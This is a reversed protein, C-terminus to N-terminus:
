KEQRIKYTAYLQGLASCASTALLVKNLAPSEYKSKNIISATAAILSLPLNISAIAMSNTYIPRTYKVDDTSRQLNNLKYMDWHNVSLNYTNLAHSILPICALGASGLNMLLEKNEQHAQLGSPAIMGIILLLKLISKKMNKM